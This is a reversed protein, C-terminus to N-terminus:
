KGIERLALVLNEVENLRQLIILQNTRLLTIIELLMTLTNDSIDNKIASVIELLPDNHVKNDNM